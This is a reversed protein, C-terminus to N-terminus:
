ILYTEIFSLDHRENSDNQRDRAVILCGADSGDDFFGLLARRLLTRGECGLLLAMVKAYFGVRRSQVNGPQKVRSGTLLGYRPLAHNMNPISTRLTTFQRNWCEHSDNRLAYPMQIPDDMTGKSERDSGTALDRPKRLPLCTSRRDKM